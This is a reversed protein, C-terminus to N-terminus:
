EEGEIINESKRIAISDVIQVGQKGTMDDKICFSYCGKAANWLTNETELNGAKIEICGDIPEAVFVARNNDDWRIFKITYYIM